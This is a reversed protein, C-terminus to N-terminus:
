SLSTALSHQDVELHNNPSSLFVPPISSQIMMFLDDFHVTMIVQSQVITCDDTIELLIAFM